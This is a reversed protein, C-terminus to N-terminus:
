ERQNYLIKWEKGKVLFPTFTGLLSFLLFHIPKSPFSISSFLPWHFLLKKFNYQVKIWKWRIRLKCKIKKGVRWYPNIRGGGRLPSLPLIYMGAYNGRPNQEQDLFLCLGKNGSLMQYHWGVLSQKM